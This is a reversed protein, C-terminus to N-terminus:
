EQNGGHSHLRQCIGEEISGYLPEIVESIKKWAENQFKHDKMENGIEKQILASRLEKVIKGFNDKLDPPFFIGHHAVYIDLESCAKKVRHLRHWFILEQYKNVKERADRVENKQTELLESMELFEELQPPTMRDLDPYEQGPSVLSRVRSYAEDLKSWAEPLTEFEKEQMKLVGSLTSDIEVRLRQVELAQQHKFHELRESFKNEIWSKGFYRFLLFAIGAAGGGFAVIEGLFKLLQENM